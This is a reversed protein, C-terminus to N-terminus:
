TGVMRARVVLYDEDVSEVAGTGAWQYYWYGAEDLSLDKYYVGTSSKAIQSLAYTYTDVNGSPDKVKLTVTTPDTATGGVTFTGTLRVQDGKDYVNAM